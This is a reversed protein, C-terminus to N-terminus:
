VLKFIEDVNRGEIKIVVDRKIVKFEKLKDLYEGHGKFHKVFSKDIDKNEKEENLDIELGIKGEKSKFEKILKEYLDFLNLWLMNGNLDYLTKELQTYIVRDSKLAGKYLINMTSVGEFTEMINITVEDRIKM